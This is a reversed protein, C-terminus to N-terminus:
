EYYNERHPKTRMRLNVCKFILPKLIKNMSIKMKEKIYDTAKFLYESNITLNVYENRTMKIKEKIFVYLCIFSKLVKYM